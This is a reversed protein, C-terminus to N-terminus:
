CQVLLDVRDGRRDGSMRDSTRQDQDSKKQVQLVSELLVSVVTVTLTIQYNGPAAYLHTPNQETSTTGDGFNWSWSVAPAGTSTDTFVVATGPGGPQALTFNATIPNYVVVTVNIPGTTGGPDDPAIRSAVSM